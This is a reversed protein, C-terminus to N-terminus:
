MIIDLNSLKRVMSQTVWQSLLGNRERVKEGHICTKNCPTAKFLTSYSNIPSLHLLINRLM